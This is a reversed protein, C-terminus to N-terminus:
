INSQRALEELVRKPYRSKVFGSALAVGKAGLELAAKVDEGNTIGAGCLVVIKPNIRKVAKVFRTIMEPRTKSVSVGTGILEPPEYLLFDPEYGAIKVGEKVTAAFCLTLLKYKKSLEITKKIESLSLKRESHNLFTGVGGVVKVSLMSVHGTHAGEDIADIHQALTPIKLKAVKEIDAYQPSVFIKVKYKRSVDKCIGALKIAKSGIAEKYTKFNIVLIGKM